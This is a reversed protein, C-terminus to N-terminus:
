DEKLFKSPDILSQRAMKVAYNAHRTPENHEGGLKLTAVYVERWLSGFDYEYSYELERKVAMFEKELAEKQGIILQIAKRLKPSADDPLLDFIPHSM